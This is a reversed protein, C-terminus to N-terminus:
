IIAKRLDDALQKIAEPDKEQAEKWETAKTGWFKKPTDPFRPLVHIHIHPAMDGIRYMYVHEAFLVDELARSVKSIAMGMSQQEELTLESLKEVHRKAEVLIHGLYVSKSNEDLPYHSAVFHGDEYIKFFDKDKHKKCIVCEHASSKAPADTKTDTKEDDSKEAQRKFFKM